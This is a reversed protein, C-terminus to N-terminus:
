PGDGVIDAALRAAQANSPNLLVGADALIEAQRSANQPDGDTGCVFGVFHVWRGAAEAIDLAEGIAAALERAKTPAM